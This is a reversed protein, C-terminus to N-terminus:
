PRLLKLYAELDQPTGLGHMNEFAINYIGIKLGNKIAYNYVPCTYFEQNVRDNRCIMDIAGNVFDRGRAFLYIGVTAIDSIAEKEKVEVVLDKELRAFSWKPDKERDIFSLISGDLKRKFCDEVFDKLVFDVVQDSNAILLPLDNNILTRAYLVTCATGESLSDICVFEVNFEKKIREVAEKESELQEKRAILIYRANEYALNELVRVIMPKGLVDIFPKSKTFGAKAFRSGLGAMPIVINM